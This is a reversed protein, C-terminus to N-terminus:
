LDCLFVNLFLRFRKIIGLPSPIRIVHGISRTSPSILLNTEMSFMKETDEAMEM